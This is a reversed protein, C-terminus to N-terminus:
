WEAFNLQYFTRNGAVDLESLILKVQIKYQNYYSSIANRVNTSAGKALQLLSSPPTSGYSHDRARASYNAYFATRFYNIWPICDDPKRWTFQVFFLIAM